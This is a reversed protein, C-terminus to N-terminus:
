YLLEELVKKGMSPVTQSCSDPATKNRRLDDETLFLSEVCSSLASWGANRMKSVAKDLWWGKTPKASYEILEVLNRKTFNYNPNTHENNGSEWCVQMSVGDNKELYNFGASVITKVKYMQPPFIEMGSM